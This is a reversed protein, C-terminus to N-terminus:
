QTEINYDPCDSHDRRIIHDNGSWGLGAVSYVMLRQTIVKHDDCPKSVTHNVFDAFSPDRVSLPRNLM